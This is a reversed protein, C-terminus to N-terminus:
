AEKKTSKKVAVDVEYIVTILVRPAEQTSYNGIHSEIFRGGVKAIDTIIYEFQEDIARSPDPKKADLKLIRSRSRIVKGVM